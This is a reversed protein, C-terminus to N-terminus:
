AKSELHRFLAAGVKMTQEGENWTATQTKLSSQGVRTPGTGAQWIPLQISDETTMHSTNGRKLYPRQM